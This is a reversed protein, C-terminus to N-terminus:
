KAVNRVLGSFRVRVVYQKTRTSWRHSVITAIKILDNADIRIKYKNYVYQSQKSAAQKIAQQKLSEIETSRPAKKLPISVVMETQVLFQTPTQNQAPTSPQSATSATSSNTSTASTTPLSPASPMRSTTPSSSVAPSSGTAVSSPISPTSPASDTSGSPTTPSSEGQSGIGEGATQIEDSYLFVVALKELFNKGLQNETLLRVADETTLVVVGKNPGAVGVARLFLPNNGVRQKILPHELDKADRLWAAVGYESVLEPAINKFTGWVESGDERVIKPSMCPRLGLGRADIIVGTYPPSTDSTKAPAQGQSPMQNGANQAKGTAGLWIIMLGLAVVWRM